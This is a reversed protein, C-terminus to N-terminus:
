ERQKNRSGPVIRAKVSASLQLLFTSDEKMTVDGYDGQLRLSFLTSLTQGAASLWRVVSSHRMLWGRLANVSHLQESPLQFFSRLAQIYGQHYVIEIGQTHVTLISDARPDRPNTEVKLLFCPDAEKVIENHVDDVDSQKDQVYVILPYATGPSSGDHVAVGALSLTTEHNDPRQTFIAQFRDLVVSIIETNQGLPDTRLAFTGCELRAVVKTQLTDSRPAEFTQSPVLVSEPGAPFDNELHTRAISRYLRLDTYPLKQELGELFTTDPPTLTGQLKQKFLEVYRIRDRRRETLWAWTWRRQQARVRDMIATGAFKWLAKFRDMGFAEEAARRYKHYRRRRISFYYIDVLSMIHRYQYDDLSVLVHDFLLQIDFQPLDELLVKHIKIRGQGSLPKLIFKGDQSLKVVRIFAIKSLKEYCKRVPEALKGVFEDHSLNSVTRADTDLYVALSDLYVLKHSISAECDLTQPVWESTTTIAKFGTLSVGIAFLHGLERSKDEYRIHVNKVSVQLNDLIKTILSSLRGYQLPTYEGELPLHLLEAIRLREEKRAQAYAKEEAADYSTGSPPVVLLYVDEVLLKIPHNGFNQWDLSLSFHGLHGELFDVPLGFKKVSAKTFHLNRLTLQGREIGAKVEEQDIHDVYPALVQNVLVIVLEKLRGPDLWWM